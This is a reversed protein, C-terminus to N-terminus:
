IITARCVPSKNGTTRAAGSMLETQQQEPHGRVLTGKKLQNTGSVRPQDSRVQLVPEQQKKNPQWLIHARVAPTGTPTMNANRTSPHSCLEGKQPLHLHCPKDLGCQSKCWLEWHSRHSLILLWFCHRPIVELETKDCLQHEELYLVLSFM